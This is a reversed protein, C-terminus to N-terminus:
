EGSPVLAGHIPAVWSDRKMDWLTFDNDFQWYAWAFGRREAERAAAATYAVRMAEPTGSKDYAGFEGLMVPRNNARAWAAVKDFDAALAARDAESGWTVGRLAKLDTWSAGQHTFRFPEYYHFTVLINRDDEPLKLLPLHNLSNWSTPGIVVTRTPNTERVIALLEPFLSNWVEGNLDGHPENLLEFALSRPADRYRPAVQRWFAPLKERCMPVDKSCADFDHEDLIVKLGARRAESVVRDLRELWAPDLRNSEDMHRFAFLNVRVFDFGGRRIEAFHRMQFRADAAGKWYPDYGLVNVGRRFQLAATGQAARPETTRAACAALLLLAAAVIWTKSVM